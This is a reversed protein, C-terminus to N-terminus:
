TWVSWWYFTFPKWVTRHPICYTLFAFWPFSAVCHHWVLECCNGVKARWDELTGIDDPGSAHRNWINIFHPFGYSRLLSKEFFSQVSLLIMEFLPAPQPRVLRRWVGACRRRRHRRDSSWGGAIDLLTILLWIRTTLCQWELPASHKGPHVEPAIAQKTGPRVYGTMWQTSQTEEM